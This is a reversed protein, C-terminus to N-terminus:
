KIFYDLFDINIINCIHLMLKIILLNIFMIIRKNLNIIYYNNHIICHQFLRIFNIFIKCIDCRNYKVVSILYIFYNYQYIIIYKM